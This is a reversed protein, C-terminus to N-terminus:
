RTAVAARASRERVAADHLTALTAIRHMWLPLGAAELNGIPASWRADPTSSTM